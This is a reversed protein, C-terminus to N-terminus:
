TSILQVPKLNAVVNEGTVGFFAEETRYQSLSSVAAPIHILDQQSRNFATQVLGNECERM